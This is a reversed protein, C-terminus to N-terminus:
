ANSLTRCEPCALRGCDPCTEQGEYRSPPIACDYPAGCNTHRLKEGQLIHCVEDERITPISALDSPKTLVATDSLETLIADLAHIEDGTLPCSCNRAATCSPSMAFCEALYKKTPFMEGAARSGHWTIRMVAEMPEGRWAHWDDLHADPIHFYGRAWRVAADFVANSGTPEGRDRSRRAGPKM